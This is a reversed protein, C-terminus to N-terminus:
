FRSSLDLSPPDQPLAPVQGGGALLNLEKLDAIFDAKVKDVAEDRTLGQQMLAKIKNVGELSGVYATALEAAQEEQSGQTRIGASTITGAGKIQGAEQYAAENPGGYIPQNNEDYGELIAYKVPDSIALEKGIAIIPDDKSGMRDYYGGLKSAQESKYALEAIKTDRERDQKAIDSEFKAQMLGEKDRAEASSAASSIVPDLNKSLQQPTASTGVALGARMLDLGQRTRNRKKMEEPDFYSRMLDQYDLEAQTPQMRERYFDYFEGIGSPNM